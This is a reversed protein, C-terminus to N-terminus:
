AQAEGAQKPALVHLVDRLRPVPRLAVDGTTVAREWRANAPAAAPVLPAPTEVRHSPLPRALPQVIIQGGCWREVDSWSVRRWCSLQPQGAADLTIRCQVVLPARAESPRRADLVDFWEITQARPAVHRDWLLAAATAASRQEVLPEAVAVLAAGHAAYLRVRYMGGVHQDTLPRPSTM